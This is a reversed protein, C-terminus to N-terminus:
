NDSAAVFCHQLAGALKSKRLFHMTTRVQVFVLIHKSSIARLHVSSLCQWPFTEDAMALLEQDQQIKGQTCQSFEKGGQEDWFCSLSDTDSWAVCLFFHDNRQHPSIAKHGLVSMSFDAKQEGKRGRVNWPSEEPAFAWWWATLLSKPTMWVWKRGQTNGWLWSGM